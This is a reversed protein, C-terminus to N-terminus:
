RRLMRPNKMHEEHAIVRPFSGFRDSPPFSIDSSLDVNRSESPTRNDFYSYRTCQATPFPIVSWVLLRRFIDLIPRPEDFRMALVSEVDDRRKLIDATTAIGGGGAVGRPDDMGGSKGCAMETESGVHFALM